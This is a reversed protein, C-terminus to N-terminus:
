TTGINNNNNLQQIQTTKYNTNTQQTNLKSASYFDMKM